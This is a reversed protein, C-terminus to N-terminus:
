ARSVRFVERAGSLGKLEHMGASEVEIGSGTLLDRTTWSVLVEGAGALGLVRAAAHISQGRAEGGVIHVEGTHCGVRIELGAVASAQAMARGCRVARAPSDFMALFGDGTTKLELGRHRDLQARMLANHELMMERWRIDGVRALTTTSGVIDTFLLTALVGDGLDEPSMAFTRGAGSFEVSVWPEDGIVWGEHGPPLEYVDGPGVELLTGDAMSVGLRGSQVQGVHRHQCLETGVIPKVCTSWRWGPELRYETVMVEDLSIIRLSGRPFTRIDDTDAFCRRQLRPM